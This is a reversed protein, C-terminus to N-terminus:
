QEKKQKKNKKPGGNKVEGDGGKEEFERTDALEEGKVVIKWLLRM